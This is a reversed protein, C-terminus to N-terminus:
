WCAPTPRHTTPWARHTPFAGKRQPTSTDPEDALDQILHALVKGDCPKTLFYDGGAFDVMPGLYARTMDDDAETIVIITVDDERNEHRIFSCLDFGDMDPLHLETILIDPPNSECAEVAEKATEVTDVELGISELSRRVSERSAPLHDALLIRLPNRTM